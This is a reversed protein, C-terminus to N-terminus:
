RLLGFPCVTVAALDILQYDVMKFFIELEKRTDSERRASALIILVKKVM